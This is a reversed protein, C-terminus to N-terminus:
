SRSSCWGCATTDMEYVENGITVTEADAVNSAIRLVNSFRRGANAAKSYSLSKM